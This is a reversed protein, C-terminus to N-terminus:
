HMAEAKPSSVSRRCICIHIILYYQLSSLFKGVRSGRQRRSPHSAHLWARMHVCVCMCTHTHVHTCPGNNPMCEPLHKCICLAATLKFHGIDCLYGAIDLNTNRETELKTLCHHTVATVLVWLTRCQGPIWLASSVRSSSEAKTGGKKVKPLAIPFSIGRTPRNKKEGTKAHFSAPQPCCRWRWKGDTKGPFRHSQYEYSGQTRLCSRERTPSSKMTALQSLCESMFYFSTVASYSVWETWLQRVKSRRCNM